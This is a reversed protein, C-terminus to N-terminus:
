QPSLGLNDFVAQRTGLMAQWTARRWANSGIRYDVIAANSGVLRPFGLLWFKLDREDRSCSVLLGTNVVLASVHRYRRAQYDYQVRVDWSSIEMEILSPQSTTPAASLLLLGLILLLVM